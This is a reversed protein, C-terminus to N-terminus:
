VEQILTKPSIHVSQCNPISLPHFKWTACQYIEFEVILSVVWGKCKIFHHYDGVQLYGETAILAPSTIFHSAHSDMKEPGDVLLVVYGYGGTVLRNRICLPM